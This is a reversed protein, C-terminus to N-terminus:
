KYPVPNVWKYATGQTIGFRRAIQRYTSGGARMRRAEEAHLSKRPPAPPRWGPRSSRPRYKYPGHSRRADPWPRAARGHVAKHCRPCLWRVDLPRNYDDHHAHTPQTGCMECPLPALHGRKVATAVIVHARHASSNRRIWKARYDDPGRWADGM